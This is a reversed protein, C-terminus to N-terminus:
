WRSGRFHDASLTPSPKLPLAESIEGAAEVASIATASEADEAKLGVRKAGEIAGKVANRAVKAVDGAGKITGELADRIRKGLDGLPM